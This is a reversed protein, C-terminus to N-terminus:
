PQLWRLAAGHAFALEPHRQLSELYHQQFEGGDAELLLERLRQRWGAVQQDTLEHSEVMLRTLPQLWALAPDHILANLFEHPSLRGRQKEHDRRVADLLTKHLELLAARAESAQTMRGTLKGYL